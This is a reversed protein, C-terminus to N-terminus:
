LIQYSGNKNLRMGKLCPHTVKGDSWKVVLRRGTCGEMRCVRTAGTAVGIGQGDRTLVRVNKFSEM